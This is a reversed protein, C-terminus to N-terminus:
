FGPIHTNSNRRRFQGGIVKKVSRSLHEGEEWFLLRKLSGARPGSRIKVVIVRKISKDLKGSKITQAM